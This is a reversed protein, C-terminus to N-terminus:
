SEMKIRYIGHCIASEEALEIALFHLFSSLVMTITFDSWAPVWAFRLTMGWIEHSCHDDQSDKRLFTYYLFNFLISGCFSSSGRYWQSKLRPIPAM